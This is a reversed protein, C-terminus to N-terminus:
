YMFCMCYMFYMNVINADRHLRELDKFSPVIMFAGTRFIIYHYNSPLPCRAVSCSVLTEANWAPISGEVVTGGRPNELWNRKPDFNHM